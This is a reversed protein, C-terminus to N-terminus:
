FLFKKIKRKSHWGVFTGWGCHQPFQPVFSGCLLEQYGKICLSMYNTNLSKLNTISDKIYEPQINCIKWSNCTKVYVEFWTTTAPSVIARRLCMSIIWMLIKDYARPIQMVRSNEKGNDKRTENSKHFASLIASFLNQLLFRILGATMM